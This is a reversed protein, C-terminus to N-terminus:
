RMFKEEQETLDTIEARVIIMLHSVEDSRGKRSFLFSLLPIKGLFPIESQRDVTRIDKLGGIVITGQDPVRVTTRVQQLRLEPLQIIVPAFSSALSTAFEQIPRRLRAVTPQLELTIYRRDNSVTPRVDLTLGDQIIGVIPDAIFSTQAVEVDFDQIYSIQNVMTLNARQTNYVTVIPATLTRASLSKETARVIMSVETDDIISMSLTAGGVSSLVEGLPNDFINETRGRFDGDQGDNFYAGASPPLAAGTALGAGGNDFGASAADELGNTVDDLNVLTGPNAGAVGNNGGLGRFDVGVDKLFNESVELFRSEVTVVIGAFGRLDDLFNAVRQQIDANATVVLNQQGQPAIEAGETEEWYKPSVAGKILEILEDAQGYPFIPEESETGFLPTEENALDDPGVLRITPPIFDTLGSTLDAVPHIEVQFKKDQYEKSTFVIINGKPTWIVNEDGSHSRLMELVQKLPADQVVLNAVKSENVSSAIRADVMINIGTQVRLTSIVEGFARDNVDLNVMTNGVRAMLEAAEPDDDQENFTPRSSKRLDTIKDWFKRSPWVLIKDQPIRTAQIDDMWERFAQKERKLYDVELQNHRAREAAERLDQAKTNDPQEELIKEAYAIASVYDDRDFAKVAAGMWQELRELEALLQQEEEKAMEALADEIASQRAEKEAAEKQAKAQRLGNQADSEISGWEVQFPSTNIIFLSDQFAEIADDYRENTLHMRGVNNLKGAKTRQEEIRVKANLARSKAYDDAANARSGLMSMVERMMFKAEANDPSIEMAERLRDRADLYEGNRMHVRAANVKSQALFRERDATAAAPDVAPPGEMPPGGYVPMEDTLVKKVDDSADSDSGFVGKAPADSDIAVSGKTESKKTDAKNSDALGTAKPSSSKDALTRTSDGSADLVDNLSRSRCSSLGVTLLVAFAVVGLTHAIATTSRVRRSFTMATRTMSVDVGLSAVHPPLDDPDHLARIGGQM